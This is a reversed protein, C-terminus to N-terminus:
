YIESSIIDRVVKKDNARARGNFSKKYSKRVKGERRWDFMELFEWGFKRYRKTLGRKM